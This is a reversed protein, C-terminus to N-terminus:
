KKNLNKIGSQTIIYSTQMTIGSLRKILKRDILKQLSSLSYNETKKSIIKVLDSQTVLHRDNIEKLILTEEKTLDM